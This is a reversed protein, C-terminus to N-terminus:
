SGSNAKLRDRKGRLWRPFLVKKQPGQDVVYEFASQYFYPKLYGPVRFVEAGDAGIFLTTPSFNIMRKENFARESLVEGDFDTVENDGYMNIQLVDFHATIYDVLEPEAFNVEHLRKCSGCGIQEFLIVLGKGAARAEALDEKLDLFSDGKMWPQTHIGDDRLPAEGSWVTLPFVLLTFLVLPLGLRRM